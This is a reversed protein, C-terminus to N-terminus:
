VVHFVGIYPKGDRGQWCFGKWRGLDFNAGCELGDITKLLDRAEESHHVYDLLHTGEAQVNKALVQGAPNIIWGEERMVSTAGLMWPFNEPAERLNKIEKESQNWFYFSLFSLGGLLLLLLFHFCFFAVGMWRSNLFRDPDFSLSITGVKMGTSDSVTRSYTQMNTFKEKSKTHYYIEGNRGAVQVEMVGPSKETDAGTVFLDRGETLPLRNAHSLQALLSEVHPHVFFDRASSWKKWLPVSGFALLIYVSIMVVLIWKQKMKLELKM